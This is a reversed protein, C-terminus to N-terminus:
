VRLAGLQVASFLALAFGAIVVHPLAVHPRLLVRILRARSGSTWYKYWHTDIQMPEALPNTGLFMAEIEASRGYFGYQFQKWFAEVLWFMLVSGAALLSVWHSKALFASVTSALGFSVSWTKISIARGDMEVITKQIHLYEDKLLSRLEQDAPTKQNSDAKKASSSHKVAADSRLRKSASRLVVLPTRNLPM